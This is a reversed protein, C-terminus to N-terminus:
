SPPSIQACRLRSADNRRVFSGEGLKKGITYSAGDRSPGVRVGADEDEDEDEDEGGDGDGGDEDPAPAPEPAPAPAPEPEPEPEATTQETEPKEASDATGPQAPAATSSGCGM